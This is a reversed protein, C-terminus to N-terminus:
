RGDSQLAGRIGHGFKLNAEGVPIPAQHAPTPRERLPFLDFTGALHEVCRAALALLRTDFRHVYGPNSHERETHIPHLTQAKIWSSESGTVPVNCLRHLEGAGCRTSQNLLLNKERNNQFAQTRM